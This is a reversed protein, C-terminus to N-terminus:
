VGEVGVVEVGGEEEEEEEEMGEELVTARHVGMTRRTATEAETIYRLRLQHTLQASIFIFIFLLSLPINKGPTATGVGQLTGGEKCSCRSSDRLSVGGGGSGRGQSRLAKYRRPVAAAWVVVVQVMVVLLLLLLLVVVM